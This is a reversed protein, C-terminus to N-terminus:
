EMCLNVLLVYYFYHEICQEIETSSKMNQIEITSLEQPAGTPTLDSAKDLVYQITDWERDSQWKQNALLLVRTQQDSNLWVEQLVMNEIKIPQDLGMAVAPTQLPKRQARDAIYCWSSSKFIDRISYIHM